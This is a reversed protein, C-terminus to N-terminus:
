PYHKLCSAIRGTRMGRLYAAAFAQVGGPDSAFARDGIIPNDPNTDVDVVPAFNMTVGLCRLQRAVSAAVREVLAPDGTNALRRMAPVRLAPPELRAVRGGEEDIAILPPLEAPASAGLQACLGQLATIGAPGPGLNRRFIVVGAREGAAFAGTLADPALTGDFGVVLLQGALQAPSLDGILADLAAM